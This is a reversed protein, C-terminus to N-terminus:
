ATRKWMYVALYPPMNNHAKGSGGNSFNVKGISKAGSASSGGNRYNSGNTMASSFCGSVKYVPTSSAANHMEFQGTVAPLNAKSLAVAAEGGTSGAAYTGNCALLFRGSMQEWTGGFLSAPSASSASIYIAGVPYVKNLLNSDDIMEVWQNADDGANGTSGSWGSANGQRHYLSGYAQGFWLQSVETGHAMTLVNGYSTPQNTMDGPRYFRTSVGSNDWLSKTNGTAECRHHDNSSLDRGKAMLAWDDAIAIQKEGEPYSGFGFANRIKSWVMFVSGPAIVATQEAVSVKDAVSFRFEYREDLAVADTLAVATYGSASDWGTIETWSDEGFVRWYVRVTAANSGVETMTYSCGLKASKGKTRSVTGDSTCRLATRGTIAIDTYAEVTISISGSAERGRSDKVTATFTVTGATRLLGSTLNDAWASDGNGTILVSAVTAGTGAAYGSVSVRCKSHGQIYLGDLGDLLTATIAGVTPVIGAGATITISSSVAGMSVGSSDLTEVKVSGTGSVANPIQDLWALPITYSVSTGVGTATYSRSGFAFTVRHTYSSDVRNITVGLATGADLTARDLSFTSIPNTYDIAVEIGSFYVNSQSGASNATKRFLLSFSGNGTVRGTLDVTGGSGASLSVYWLRNAAVAETGWFIETRGPSAYTNGSAFTLTVKNIIAGGTLGSVTPTWVQSAAGTGKLWIDSCTLKITPM